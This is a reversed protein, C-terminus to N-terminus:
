PCLPFRRSTDGEKVPWRRHRFLYFPTKRPCGSGRCLVEDEASRKVYAIYYQYTSYSGTRCLVEDEASRKVYAIRYQYTSYSGERCLVEDEASRIQQQARCM